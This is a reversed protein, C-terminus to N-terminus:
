SLLFDGLAYDVKYVCDDYLARIYTIEEETPFVDGTTLYQLLLGLSPIDECGVYGIEPRVLGRSFMKFREEGADYMLQGYAKSHVDYNHMFVFMQQNENKIIWDKAEDCVEIVTRRNGERGGEPVSFWDMGRGFGRSPIFWWLFGAFGATMYGYNRMLEPLTEIYPFVDTNRTLGHGEPYRGTLMSMHAVPTFTQTTYANEFVVADKAFTDLNPSTPLYYGYPLLHDPRLTDCSIIFFNTKTQSDEVIKSVLMPNGWVGFDGIFNNIPTMQFIVEIEQGAYKALNLVVRKWERDEETTQPKMESQYIKEANDKSVVDISFSIGDSQWDKGESSKKYAGLVPNYIGTYFILEMGQEIKRNFIMKEDWLVDMCVGGITLQRPHKKDYPVFVVQSLKVEDEKTLGKIEVWVKNTKDFIPNEKDTFKLTFSYIHTKSDNILRIGESPFHIKDGWKKSSWGWRVEYGENSSVYVHVFQYMGLNIASPISFLMIGTNKDFSKEWEKGELTLEPSKEIKEWYDKSFRYITESWSVCYIQMVCVYILSILFCVKGYFLPIIHKRRYPNKNM